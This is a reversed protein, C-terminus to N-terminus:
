FTTAIDWIQFENRGYRLRESHPKRTGSAVALVAEFLARTMEARDAGDLIPGADFDMDRPMKRFLESTTTIKLTPAIITGLCSGQGTTFLNVTCGGCILGTMSVQDLGPTDMFAFGAHPDILEGYHYAANLATIGGKTAAGGSKEFITTLGGEKNGTSPNGDVSFTVGHVETEAKMRRKWFDFFGLFKQGVALDKARRVISLHAGWTETTEALVSTGGIGAILDTYLGVLPNATLGSFADSGGCNLGTILESAPVDTREVSNAIPLWERVVRVIEAIADESGGIGQLSIYRTREEDPSRDLMNGIQILEPKGPFEFQGVECGLGVYFRSHVNPHNGVNALCRAVQLHQPSQAQIGCGTTHKVAVIGDVNPYNALDGQLQAAAEEVVTASCNVTAIIAIVNRTGVRGNARRYGRFTAGAAWEPVPPVAPREVAIQPADFIRDDFGLNHTHVHQGVNIQGTALGIPFGYKLVPEDVGIPRLAFKHKRRINERLTVGAVTEGATLDKLAVAVNDSPHIITFSPRM